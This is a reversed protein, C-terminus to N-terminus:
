EVEEAWHYPTRFFFPLLDLLKQGDALTFTEESNRKRPDYIGKKLTAELVEFDLEDGDTRILKVRKGELTAVAYQYPRHEADSRKFVVDAM